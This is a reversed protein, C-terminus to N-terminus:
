PRHRDKKNIKEWEEFVIKANEPYVGPGFEFQAIIGGKPDYFNSAIKKVANKTVTPNKSVLVHQRDIEGWFTIKSKAIKSLEALDMVFLQSNIADVGIEILDSYISIINGDSHMFIFKDSTNAINCYDKYLPKFIQRWLEPNILLNQQSGWDDMFMLADVNTKAWFELEKLYFEHIAKLLSLSNSDPMVMDMMANVTGRIFQYREWPRPHCNAMVFKDTDNCFKNVTDIAQSSDKPLTEHPIHISKWNNLDKLIPDRVEGSVGYHINEFMCGWEDVYTGVDFPNGRQHKSKNYVNSTKIIDDPFDKQLLELHQPYNKTAWPLVWMQRGIREPHEFKLTRIIIERPTQPM